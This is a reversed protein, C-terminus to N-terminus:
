LSLIVFGGEDGKIIPPCLPIKKVEKVEAVKAVEKVKKAYSVRQGGAKREAVDDYFGESLNAM